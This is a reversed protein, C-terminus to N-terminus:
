VEPVGFCEGWFEGGGCSLFVPVAFPNGELVVRSIGAVGERQVVLCAHSKENARCGAFVGLSGVGLGFDDGRGFLGEKHFSPRFCTPGLNADTRANWGRLVKFLDGELFTVLGRIFGVEM